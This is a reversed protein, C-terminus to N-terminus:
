AGMRQPGYHWTAPGYAPQFHQKVEALSAGEITIDKLRNSGLGMQRALNLHNEARLFPPDPYEATPEFGMAAVAVADTAVPNKGGILIGPSQPGLNNNWPGESGDVTKIGDILSINVPRARNLDVVVRPLRQKMEDEAGHLDSRYTDGYFQVPVMGVLNKMSQTIGCIWHCKMKAVSVLADVEELIHNTTFQDYIFWNQGVPLTAYDSYPQTDNLDILTAGLDHAVDVYGWDQYSAWEYVSEVIYVAAAGADYLLEIMARVVAPHTVYTEIPPLGGAPQVSTGGTLNPKIAVKDDRKIVDSLGGLNDFLTEVQRRVLKPDYSAARAIAVQYRATAKAATATPSAPVATSTPMATLTPPVATTAPVSTPTASPPTVTSTATAIPASTPSPETATPPTGCGALALGGVVTGSVKLFDRRSLAHPRAQSSRSRRCSPPKM